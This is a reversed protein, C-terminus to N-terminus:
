DNVSTEPKETGNADPTNRTMVIIQSGPLDCFYVKDEDPSVGIAVNKCGGSLKCGGVAGVAKGASTFQRVIGESEATFINGDKGFCLNMPNCCGGFQGNKQGVRGGFTRLQKGDRNYCVVRHRSNEAVYLEEGRCQIDMQGCCGSLGKVIQKPEEFDHNMRWVAYGYGNTVGCAIFVDDQSVTVANVIKLRSTLTRVVEDVSQRNAQQEQQKEISKLSREAAALQRAKTKSFKGDNAEEKEAKLKDIQSQLEDKQQKFMEELRQRQDELTEEADKRLKEPDGLAQKVHQLEALKLLKGDSSYKAIQGGGAALIQGDPTATVSQVTFEVDWERLANGECDFVRLQSTANKGRSNEVGHRPPGVVAVLDGTPTVCFTQLGRESQKAIKVTRSQHHTAEALSWPEVQEGAAKEEVIAESPPATSSGGGFLFQFVSGLATGGAPRPAQPNKAKAPTTQATSNAKDAENLTKAPPAALAIGSLGFALYGCLSLLSGRIAITSFM